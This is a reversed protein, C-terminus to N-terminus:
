RSRRERVADLDRQIGDVREIAEDIKQRDISREVVIPPPVPKRIPIAPVAPRVAVPGRVIDSAACAGLGLCVVWVM